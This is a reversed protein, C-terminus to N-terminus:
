IMLGSHCRREGGSGAGMGGREEERSGERLERVRREDGERGQRGGGRGM